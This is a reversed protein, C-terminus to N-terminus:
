RVVGNEPREPFKLCQTPDQPPKDLWIVQNSFDAGYAAAVQHVRSQCLFYKQNRTKRIQIRWQDTPDIAAQPEGFEVLEGLRRSFLHFFGSVDKARVAAAYEPKLGIFLSRDAWLWLAQLLLLTWVTLAVPRKMRAVLSEAWITLAGGLWLHYRFMWPVKSVILAPLAEIAPPTKRQSLLRVLGIAGLIPLVLGLGGSPMDWMPAPELGGFLALYFRRWFPEESFPSLALFETPSFPGPFIVKGHFTLQFPYLPNSYQIWNPIYTGAGLAIVFAPILLFPFKRWRFLWYVFFVVAAPASALKAGVFFSLALSFLFEDKEEISLLCLLGFFAVFSDIYLSSAQKVVLPITCWFAIAVAARGGWRRTTNGLALGGGILPITGLLLYGHSGFHLIWWLYISEVLKPFAYVAFYGNKFSGWQHSQLAELLPPLHYDLGDWDIPYLLLCYFLASGIALWAPILWPDRLSDQSPRQWRPGNGWKKLSFTIAAIALVDFVVTAGLSVGGPIRGVTNLWLWWGLWTCLFIRAIM